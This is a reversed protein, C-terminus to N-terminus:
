EEAAAEGAEDGGEENDSATLGSPAAINAIV